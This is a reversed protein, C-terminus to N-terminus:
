INRLYSQIVSSYDERLTLIRFVKLVVKQINKQLILQSWDTLFCNGGKESYDVFHNTLFAIKGVQAKVQLIVTGNVFM